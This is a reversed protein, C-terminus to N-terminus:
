RRIPFSKESYHYALRHLSDFHNRSHLCLGAPTLLCRQSGEFGCDIQKSPPDLYRSTARFPQAPQPPCSGPTFVVLQRIREQCHCAGRAAARAVTKTQLLFDLILATDANDEM